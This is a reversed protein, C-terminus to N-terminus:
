MESRFSKRHHECTGWERIARRHQATPYGVNREWGYHPFQAALAEMRTDRYTKALVSAAAISFYTADGKVVCTHPVFPYPNFRNGDVLLHEPQLALQDVARHMALLSAQLINFTDIETPSAEAVAWAFAEREIEVRLSERQGRSLQKSDNLLSHHYDPPLIAAAAVVPGALCGRGVEDLGAELLHPHFFSKLLSPM